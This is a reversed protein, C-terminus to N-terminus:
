KLIRKTITIDDFDIVLMYVGSALGQMSITERHEFGVKNFTRQNVMQGSITMLRVTVQGTGENQMYLTVHDQAPIPYLSVLKSLAIENIGTVTREVETVLIVGNEQVTLNLQINERKTFTIDEGELPQGDIDIAIQYDGELLGEFLFGGNEDTVASGVIEGTNLDILFIQVNAIPEDGNTTGSEPIGTLIGALTNQGGNGQTQSILKMAIDASKDTDVVLIESSSLSLKGGLYTAAYQSVISLGPVVGITYEGELLGDFVYGGSELGDITQQLAWSGNERIYLQVAVDTLPTNDIGTVIGRIEFTPIIEVVDLIEIIFVQETIIGQGDTASIRISLSPQVEYDFSVSSVLSNGDISFSGNDAAGEGSVLSFTFPSIADNVSLEGIVVGPEMNEDIRNNSLFIVPSEQVNTVSITFVAEISAGEQDKSAVRITYLSKSEFDFSQTAYLLNGRIEFSANNESGEGTVLTYTHIDDADDDRTSFEGIPLDTASNEAVVNTSLNIATPADNVNNVKIVFASDYSLGGDDETRIRINYSSQSEFDVPELTALRGNELSFKANDDSGEGSVFSLVHSVDDEDEILFTSIITGIEINEDISLNSPTIKSPSENVDLVEIVFTKTFPEKNGETVSITVSYVAIDEFNIPLASRITDKDLIFVAPEESANEIAFVAPIETNNIFATLGGVTTGVPVNEKISNSSLTIDTPIENLDNVTIRFTKEFILGSNNVQIRVNYSSKEEFNLPTKTVLRNDEIGFPENDQVNNVLIYIYSGDRDLDVATLRGILTGQPVNENVNTNSLLIDTVNENVNEINVTLNLVSSLESDAATVEVLYVNNADADGAAEFNKAALMNLEGTTENIEFFAADEGGTISYTLGADVEGGDGDNAAIDVVLGTRNEAFRVASETIFIPADAVNTVTITMDFATSLETDTATVQVEYDNQQDADTPIEFDPPSVFSLAGTEEDISFLLQDDGGTISYTINVDEDGNVEDTAFLDIIVKDSNEPFDPQNESEFVPVENVDVVTITIVQTITSTGDTAFILVEYDNSDDQGQPDEFDPSAKFTLAGTSAAIEFLDNSYDQLSVEESPAVNPESLSYTVNADADGDDGDNANVDIITGEANEDFNATTVSEFVPAEDIDTVTVTLEINTSLAADSAVVELLYVNDQDADAPTDFNPAQKFTIAGTNADIDFLTRDASATTEAFAYTIDVDEDDGVEDAVPLDFVIADSNEPFERELSFESSLYPVENVDLVTITFEEDYIGGLGDNTRITITYSAKTEFDFTETTYLEDANTGGITFSDADTGSISYSHEDAEDADTTTLTGVLTSAASNETVTTGTIDIATPSQNPLVVIIFDKSYGLQDNDTTKISIEFINQVDHDFVADALLEDNNTGGIQFSEADTGGITYTFTAGADQDTSTLSGIVYGIPQNQLIEVTEVNGEGPFSGSLSIDTPNEAVDTVNITFDESHTLGAQDETTITISYTDKIEFDFDVASVLNSEDIAFSSADTGTISYTHADGADVDVTSLEGIVAGVGLNEEIENSSLSIDTPDDAGDLVQITFDDSFQLGGADTTTITISYSNKTEFDFIEETVVNAGDIDFSEADTGTISYTHSDGADIDTTALTGVVTGISANEEIENDGDEFAIATAVENENTITIIFDEEFEGDNGDNTVITIDYTGVSEKDFSVKSLLQDNNTGGIEFFDTNDGIITYTHTDAEDQDTTTLEGITTGADLNEQISANSLQIDSPDDNVNVITITFDKDYTINGADTTTITIQYSSKVEFDFVEASLLEDNNDGGLSFSAVDTGSLSYTFEDETDGDTTSITAISTGSEVNEDISSNDLTIDTPSNDNVNIVEITFEEPYTGGLGDNTTITITYSEKTEFDFRENTYLEDDNTGAIVFFSADTGSISYTHTDALDADTTTLSGVLTTADNNEIVTTGTIAIDTPTQNPLVKIIFDEIYDLDDNDTTTITISFSNKDDHNFVEKAQLEDNNTGGIQFSGADTGSIVYTHTANADQDTTTLTGILYGIPQNQLIEVTEVDGDGVFSNPISIDTPADQDDTVNIMFVKEFTLEAADTTTITVSYSAKTEFDFPESTLLEDNNAGGIQFSSADTGSISYTFEDARNLDTSTLSGVVTEAASNEVVSNASLTIDTPAEDREHVYIAGANLSVIPEGDNDIPTGSVIINSSTGVSYGFVNESIPDNPLLKETETMTEWGSSPKDFVYIAGEDDTPENRRPAGVVIRDGEAAISWGFDDSSAGDSATLIYTENMSGTPWGGGPEEYLYVAGNSSGDVPAANAGAVVLGNEIEVARGLRDSSTGNSALLKTTETSNSWNGGTQQFLFVVGSSSGNDDDGVAGVVALDNEIAVSWGFDDGSAGDSPTLRAVEAWSTTREFLYAAGSNNLGPADPAGVILSTGKIDVSTGFDDGSSADSAILKQTENDIGIWGSGRNYIYVAGADGNHRPSGVAIYDDTISVSTGFGDGREGDSPKLTARKTWGTGTRQLVYALGTGERDTDNPAGVVAYEGKADISYGYEFGLTSSYAEPTATRMTFFDYNTGADYYGIAEGSDEGDGDVRSSGAIMQGIGLALSEGRSGFADGASKGAFLKKFNPTTNFGQFTQISGSNSGGDDDGSAGVVYGFSSGNHTMAVASGFRDGALPASSYFTITTTPSFSRAVVKGAASAQTDDGPIGYLVREDRWVAISTGMNDDQNDGTDSYLSSFDAGSNESRYVDVRGNRFETGDNYDKSGVAVLIRTNGVNAGIAVQDGFRQGTHSGDFQERFTGGVTYVKVAGTDSNRGPLGVAVMAGEEDVDISYGSNDGSQLASTKKRVLTVDDNVSSYAYQYYAGANLAAEDNFPSGIFIYDDSIAVSWGFRDLPAADDATFKNKLSLRGFDDMSFLYVAGTSLGNESDYPAGVIVHTGDLSIDVSYGFQDDLNSRLASPIVKSLESWDQSQATSFFCQLAALLMTRLLATKM